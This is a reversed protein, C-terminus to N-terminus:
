AWRRRERLRVVGRRRDEAARAPAPGRWAGRPTAPVAPPRWFDRVSEPEPEVNAASHFPEREPNRIVVEPRGRRFTVVRLPITTDTSATSEDRYVVCTAATSSTPPPATMSTDAWIM